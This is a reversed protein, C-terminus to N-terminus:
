HHPKLNYLEGTVYAVAEDLFRKKDDNMLFKAFLGCEAAMKMEKDAASVRKALTEETETGRAELRARLDDITPTQIFAYNCKFEKATQKSIDLAGKVDIDLICIKGQKIIDRVADKHTGYFNGHVENHELFNGKAVEEEFQERSNFHYHM